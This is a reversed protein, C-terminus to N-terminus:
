KKTPDLWNLGDTRATCQGGIVNISNLDYPAIDDLFAETLAANVAGTYKRATTYNDGNVRRVLHWLALAENRDLTLIVQEVRVKQRVATRQVKAM